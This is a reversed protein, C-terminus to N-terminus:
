RDLFATRVKPWSNSCAACNTMPPKKGLYRNPSRDVLLSTALYEIGAIVFLASLSIVAPGNRTLTFRPTFTALDVAFLIPKAQILLFAQQLHWLCHQLFPM